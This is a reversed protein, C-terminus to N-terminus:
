EVRCGDLIHFEVPYAFYEGNQWSTADSVDDSVLSEGLYYAPAPARPYDPIGILDLQIVYGDFLYNEQM